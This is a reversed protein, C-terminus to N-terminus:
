SEWKKCFLERLKLATSKQKKISLRPSWNEPSDFKLNKKNWDDLIEYRYLEWVIQVAGDKGELGTSGLLRKGTALSFAPDEGGSYVHFHPPVTDDSFIFIEFTKYPNVSGRIQGDLGYPEPEEHFIIDQFIKLSQPKLAHEDDDYDHSHTENM